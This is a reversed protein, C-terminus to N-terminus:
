RGCNRMLAVCMAVVLSRRLTQLSSSLEELHMHRCFTDNPLLLVLCVLRTQVMFVERAALASAGLRRTSDTGDTEDLTM